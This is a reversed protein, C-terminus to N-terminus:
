FITPSSRWKCMQQFSKHFLVETVRHHLYVVIRSVAQVLFDQRRKQIRPANQVPGPGQGLAFPQLSRLFIGEALEDLGPSICVRRQRSSSTSLRYFQSLTIQGALQTVLYDKARKRVFSVREQSGTPLRSAKMVVQFFM